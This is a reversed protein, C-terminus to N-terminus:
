LFSQRCGSHLPAGVKSNISIPQWYDFSIESFYAITYSRSCPPISLHPRILLGLPIM